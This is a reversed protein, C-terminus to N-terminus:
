GGFKKVKEFRESKKEKEVSVAKGMIFKVSCIAAESAKSQLRLTKEPGTRLLRNSSPCHFSLQKLQARFTSQQISSSYLLSLNQALSRAEM